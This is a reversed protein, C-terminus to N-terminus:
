IARIIALVQAASHARFAGMREVSDPVSSLYPHTVVHGGEHTAACCECRDCAGVAPAATAPKLPSVAGFCAMIDTVIGYESRAAGGYGIGRTGEGQTVV